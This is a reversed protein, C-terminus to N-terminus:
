DFTKPPEKWSGVVTTHGVIQNGRVQCYDSCKISPLSFANTLLSKM